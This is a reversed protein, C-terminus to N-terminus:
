KRRKKNMHLELIKGYSEKCMESTEGIFEINDIPYDEHIAKCNTCYFSILTSHQGRHSSTSEFIEIISGNKFIIKNM